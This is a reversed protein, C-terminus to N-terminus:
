GDDVELNCECQGSGVHEPSNQTWSGIQPFFLLDLTVLFLACSFHHDLGDSLSESLGDRPLGLDSAFIGPCSCLSCMLRVQASVPSGLKSHGSDM